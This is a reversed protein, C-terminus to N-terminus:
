GSSRAKSDGIGHRRNDGGSLNALGGGLRLVLSLKVRDGVNRCRNNWDGLSSSRRSCARSLPQNDGSQALSNGNYESSCQQNCDTPQEKEKLIKIKHEPTYQSWINYQSSHARHSVIPDGIEDGHVGFKGM